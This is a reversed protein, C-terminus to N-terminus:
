LTSLWAQRREGWIELQAATDRHNRQAAAGRVYGMAVCAGAKPSWGASTLEGVPAGDLVITEGGWAYADPDDLVIRVLRKRLPEGQKQSSSDILAILPFRSRRPPVRSPVPSTSMPSVM